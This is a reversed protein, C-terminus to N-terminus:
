LVLGASLLHEGTHQQMLDFRRSFDIRCEVEEKTPVNSLQIYVKGGKEFVDIVREDGIWGLDCPQGGGTPYFPSNDLVVLIKGDKNIIEEVRSKCEKMYQDEYYLRKKM